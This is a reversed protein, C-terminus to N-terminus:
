RASAFSGASRKAFTISSPRASAGKPAATGAATALSGINDPAQVGDSAAVGTLERTESGARGECGEYGRAVSPVSVSPAVGESDAGESVAGDLLTAIETASFGRAVGFLSTAMPPLRTASDTAASNASWALERLVRESAAGGRGTWAGRAAMAARGTKSGTVGVGGAGALGGASGSESSARAVARMVDGTRGADFPPGALGAARARGM